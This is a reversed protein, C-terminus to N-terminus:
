KVRLIARIQHPLRVRKQAFLNTREVTQMPDPSMPNIHHVHTPVQTLTLVVASQFELVHKKGGTVNVIVNNRQLNWFSKIVVVQQMLYM